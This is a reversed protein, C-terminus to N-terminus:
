PVVMNFSLASPVFVLTATKQAVSNARETRAEHPPPPPPAPPSLPPPPPLVGGGGPVVAAGAIVERVSGCVMANLVCVEIAQVDDPAEEHLNYSVVAGGTPTMEVAAGRIVGTTSLPVAFVQVVGVRVALAVYVKSHTSAAAALVWCATVTVTVGKATIM